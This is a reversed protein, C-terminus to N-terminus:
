RVRAATTRYGRSQVSVNSHWGVSSHAHTFPASDYVCAESSSRFYIVGYDTLSGRNKLGLSHHTRPGSPLHSSGFQQVLQAPDMRCLQRVGVRLLDIISAVAIDKGGSLFSRSRRAALPIEKKVYGM